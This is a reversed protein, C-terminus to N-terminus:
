FPIDDEGFQGNGSPPLRPAAQRQPAPQPRAAQAQPRAGQSVPAAQRAPPSQRSQQTSQTSQASQVGHAGSAQAKSALARSRSNLKALFGSLAPAAPPAFTRLERPGRPANIWKVRAYGKDNIDTVLSVEGADLGVLEAALDGELGMARLAEMSRDLATRGKADAKSEDLFLRGELRYGARGDLLEFMLAICPNGDRDTDWSWEVARARYTGPSLTDRAPADSHEGQYTQDYESSHDTTM